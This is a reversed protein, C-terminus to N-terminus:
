ILRVSRHDEPNTEQGFVSLCVADAEDPSCGIIDSLCKPQGDQSHKQKDRTPKNKPLLSLQGEMQGYTLPIPALQNRLNALGDGRKLYMFEAPIQFIRPKGNADVEDEERLLPNLLNRLIGYLQARRNRYYQRSERESQRKQLSNSRYFSPDLPQAGFSVIRVQEFGPKKRLVDAHEKGGGGFDFLVDGGAIKWRKCLELVTPVVVSTDPTKMSILDLLGYSDSVAFSTNDGGEACDVGLTKRLRYRRDDEIVIQESLDLWDPPFWLQGGGEYFKGDLGICQRIPDWLKRRRQYERYNIVGPILQTYSPKKGKAIEAKALRVNPSDDASVRIIKRHYRKM